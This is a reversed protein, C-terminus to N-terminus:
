FFVGTEKKAQTLDSPAKFILMDLFLLVTL